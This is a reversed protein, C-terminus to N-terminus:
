TIKMKLRLIIVTSLQNSLLIPQRNIAMNAYEITLGGVHITNNKLLIHDDQSLEMLYHPTNDHTTFSPKVSNMLYSRRDEEFQKNM